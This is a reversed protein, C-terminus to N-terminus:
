TPGGTQVIATESHACAELFLLATGSCTSVAGSYADAGRVSKGILWKSISCDYLSSPREGFPSLELLGNDYLWRRNRFVTLVIINNRIPGRGRSLPLLRIGFRLHRSSWPFSVTTRPLSQCTILDQPTNLTANGLPVPGSQCQTRDLPHSPLLMSHFAHARPLPPLIPFHDLAPIDLRM